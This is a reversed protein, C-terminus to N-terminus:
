IKSRGGRNVEREWEDLHDFERGHRNPENRPGQQNYASFAPHTAAPTHPKDKLIKWGFYIIGAAIALGLVIHLLGTMWLLGIVMLFIGFGRKGNSEGNKYMSWGKFILFGAIVLAVIWGVNIGLQGLLMLGGVIVLVIGLVYSGSREHSM